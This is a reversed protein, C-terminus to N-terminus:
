PTEKSAANKRFQKEYKKDITINLPMGDIVPVVDHIIIKEGPKIGSSVIVFNNQTMGVKVPRIELVNEQTAVYVRGEHLATRPVVMAKRTPAFLQVSTYMGKILPPKVGAVINDYPRDIAVVVGLTNRKVDVAESFRIVRGQWVSQAPAGVVRVRASLGLGKLLQPMNDPTLSGLKKGKMGSVLNRMHRIPLQANIEVGDINLAEFLSSGVNVFENLKAHVKGIRADFPMVVETRGLTTRKGKVIQGASEIRAKMNAKRSAYSKLQGELEAVRQRLEIVKQREADYQSRSILRQKWVKRIRALEQEGVVLKRKALALSRKATGEEVELQKLSSKNAELDAQTQKLTTKYDVPDIRVVVTGAKISGGQKLKPHTYTVKGSVQAKSNLEVAPEVSGYATVRARFPISEVRMVKVARSEM